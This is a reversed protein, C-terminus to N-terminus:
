QLAHLFEELSEGDRQKRSTFEYRAFIVNKLKVYVENLTAIAKDYSKCEQVYEFTSATLYLRLIKLLDVGPDVTLQVFDQFQLLWFKWEKEADAATPDIALKNLSLTKNM